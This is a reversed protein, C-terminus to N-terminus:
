SQTRSQGVQAQLWRSTKQKTKLSQVRRPVRRSSYSAMANQASLASRRRSGIAARQCPRYESGGAGNGLAQRLKSINKNLNQEEVFEDEPWVAQMFEAKEILHGCNEVLVLLTDFVKPQLPVLTSGRHLTREGPNLVFSGFEYLHNSLNRM